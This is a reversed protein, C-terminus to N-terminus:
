RTSPPLTIDKSLLIGWKMEIIVNQEYLYFEYGDFVKLRYFGEPIGILRYHGNADTYCKYYGKQSEDKPFFSMDANKAAHGQADIITGEVGTNDAIDIPVNVETVQGARVVIDKIEIDGFGTGNLRLGLEWASDPFFRHQILQGSKLRFNPAPNIRRNNFEGRFDIKQGAFATSFDVPNGELDVLNVKITGGLIAKKVFRTIKGREIIISCSVQERYEEPLSKRFPHPTPAYKSNLSDPGFLIGYHGPHFNFTVTGNKDTQYECSKRRYYDSERYNWNFICVYFVENVPKGTEPDILQGIVKGYDDNKVTQAMLLSSQLFLA